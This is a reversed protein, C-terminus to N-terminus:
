GAALFAIGTYGIVGASVIPIMLGVVAAAAHRDDAHLVALEEAPLSAQSISRPEEKVPAEATTISMPTRREEGHVAINMGLRRHREKAPKAQSIFARGHRLRV